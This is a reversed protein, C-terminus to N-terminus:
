KLESRTKVPKNCTQCMFPSNSSSPDVTPSAWAEHNMGDLAVPILQDGHGQYHFEHNPGIISQSDLDRDHIDGSVVSTNGVSQRTGYGSDSPTIPYRLATGITHVSPDQRREDFHIRKTSPPLATREEVIPKIGVWPGDNDAYWQV